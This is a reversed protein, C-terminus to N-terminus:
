FWEEEDLDEEWKDPDLIEQGFLNYWQNCGPCQCAGMYDDQLLIETGCHCLAHTPEIWSWTYKDVYPERYHERDNKIKLYSKWWTCEEESCPVYENTKTESEKLPIIDADKSLLPFSYGNGKREGILDFQLGYTTHSERHRESIIKLM